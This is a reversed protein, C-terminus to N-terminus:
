NIRILTYGCKLCLNCINNLPKPHWCCSRNKRSNKIQIGPAAYLKFIANYLATPRFQTLTMFHFLAVVMTVRDNDTHGQANM